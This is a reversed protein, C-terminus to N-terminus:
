ALVGCHSCASALCLLLQVTGEVQCANAQKCTVADSPIFQGFAAGVAVYQGGNPLGSITYHKSPQPQVQQQRLVVANEPLSTLDAPQMMEQLQECQLKGDDHVQAIVCIQHAPRRVAAIHM